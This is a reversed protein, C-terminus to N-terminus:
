TVMRNKFVSDFVASWQNASSLVFLIARHTHCKKWIVHKIVHQLSALRKTEERRSLFANCM